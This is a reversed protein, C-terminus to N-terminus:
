YVLLNITHQNLNNLNNVVNDFNIVTYNNNAFELILNIIKNM